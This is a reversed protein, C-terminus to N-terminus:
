PVGQPVAARQRILDPLSPIAYTRSSRDTLYQWFSIALKRCSQKLSMVTDRCRRRVDSRTGSSVKRKKVPDRLAQESGNTSLPIDPRDLVWLLEAKNRYLRKLLQNLTEFSTRTTFITDFRAALEGKKAETPHKQYDKLDAYWAGVQGRVQNVAQRHTENLPILKHILRETHVGCLGQRLVNFQGAEDSVIALDTPVRYCV